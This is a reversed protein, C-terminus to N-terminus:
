IPDKFKVMVFFSERLLSLMLALSDQMKGEFITVYYFKKEIKM